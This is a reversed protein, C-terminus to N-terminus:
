PNWQRYRKECEKEPLALKVNVVECLLRLKECAAPGDLLLADVLADLVWLHGHVEQDREKAHKRLRNDSTILLGKLKQAKIFASLDNDSLNGITGSLEYLETLEESTLSHVKLKGNEVFQRLIAAQPEDVENFVLDTTYFQFNLQFFAETLELKVIDILINADNVVIRM